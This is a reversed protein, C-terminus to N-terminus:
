PLSAIMALEKSLINHMELGLRYRYAITEVIAEVPEGTKEHKMAVARHLARWISDPLTVSAFHKAVADNIQQDQNM